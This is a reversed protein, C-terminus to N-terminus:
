LGRKARAVQKTLEEADSNDWGPFAVIIDKEDLRPFMVTTNPKVGALTGGVFYLGVLAVIAGAAFLVAAIREDIGFSSELFIEIALLGAGAVSFRVGEHMRSRQGGNKQQPTALDGLLAEDHGDSGSRNFNAMLRKSTVVVDPSEFVVRENPQLSFSRESM